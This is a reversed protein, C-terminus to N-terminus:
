KSVRAFNSTIPPQPYNSGFWECFERWRHSHDHEKLNKNAYNVFECILITLERDRATVRDLHAQVKKLVPEAAKMFEPVVYDRSEFYSCEMRVLQCAIYLPIDSEPMGRYRGAGGLRSFYDGLECYAWNIERSGDSM